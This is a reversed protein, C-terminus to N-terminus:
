EPISGGAASEVGRGQNAVLFGLPITKTEDAHSAPRTSENRSSSCLSWAECTCYVWLHQLARAAPQIRLEDNPVHSITRLTEDGHEIHTPKLHVLEPHVNVNM